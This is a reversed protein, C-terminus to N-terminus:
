PIPCVLSDVKEREQNERRGTGHSKSVNSRNPGDMERGMFFVRAKSIRM